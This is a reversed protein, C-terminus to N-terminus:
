ARCGLVCPGGLVCRGGLVGAGALGHAAQRRLRTVSWSRPDHVLVLPPDRKKM